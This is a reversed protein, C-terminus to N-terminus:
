ELNMAFHIFHSRHGICGTPIKLHQWRFGIVGNPVMLPPLEEILSSVLFNEIPAAILGDSDMDPIAIAGMPRDLLIRVLEVNL